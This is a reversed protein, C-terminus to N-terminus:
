THRPDQSEVVGFPIGLQTASIRVSVDIPSPRISRPGGHACLGVLVLCLDLRDAVKHGVMRRRGINLHTQQPNELAPSPVGHGPRACEAHTGPDAEAREQDESQERGHDVAAVDAEHEGPEDESELVRTGRRRSRDDDGAGPQTGATRSVQVCCLHPAQTASFGSRVENALDTVWCRQVGDRQCGTRAAPTVTAMTSPAWGPHSGAARSRPSHRM